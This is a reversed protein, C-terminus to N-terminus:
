VANLPSHAGRLIASMILQRFYKPVVNDEGGGCEFSPVIAVKNVCKRLGAAQCVSITLLPLNYKQTSQFRHSAPSISSARIFDAGSEFPM